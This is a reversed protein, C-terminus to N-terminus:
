IGRWETGGCYYKKPDVNKQVLMKKQGFSKKVLIKNPNYKKVQIKM